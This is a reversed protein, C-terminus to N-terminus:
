IQQQAKQDAISMIARMNRPLGDKWDFLGIGAALRNFEDSFDEPGKGDLLKLTEEESFRFPGIRDQAADANMPCREQCRLCDYLTHHVDEPLWEPFDGGSENIASLCRENDILFRNPLIAGTPCMNRCINCKNCLDANRVDRWDDTECPMDTLFTMYAFNSGLGDIYTINNRGYVALGSQVALRKLPLDWVEQLHYGLSTVLRTIYEKAGVSDSHTLSKTQYIRGEYSFEVDAYFPHHLAAIIISKVEFGTEPLSFRYLDKVIWKQFGNLEEKEQFQNLESRIDKLHEVAVLKIRDGHRVAEEILQHNM